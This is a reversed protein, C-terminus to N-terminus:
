ENLKPDKEFLFGKVQIWLAHPMSIPAFCHYKWRARLTNGALTLRRKVRNQVFHLDLPGWIDALMKKDLKTLAEEKIIGLLYKGLNNYSDYFKRFGFEDLLANLTNWDIDTKHKRSFMMWDLVHRWTLGEHLFHSYSHEILFLASMIVPPRLLHTGEIRDEGKDSLLFNQLVRELSKLKKNGRFPVMFKHNEVSLGPLYFTSNKYFSTDVVYGNSKVIQNGLDWADFNSREPLLFCDFDVSTRHMPIPYCESIIYGKLVYTRIANNAFLLSMECASKWQIAYQEEAQLVAGILQLLNKKAPRKEFPIKDLGDLVIASLGQSVALTYLEEWNISDSLTTTGVENTGLRVLNMFVDEINKNM